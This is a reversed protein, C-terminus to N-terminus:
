LGAVSNYVLSYHQGKKVKICVEKTSCHTSKLLIIACILFMEALFPHPDRIAM